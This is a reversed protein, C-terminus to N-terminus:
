FSFSVEVEMQKMELDITQQGPVEMPNPGSVINNFAYNFAFHLANGKENLVKSAGVGIHSEVVGPALINFLVESEPIPQKGFSYGGRFTWTDIGSYNIGFKYVMMNEWGFGAGNDAGLMGSGDPAFLNSFPNSVAKSKTYCIRKIDALLKVDGSVDWALGATWSSPITFKGQEAFLGAYEDFETMLLQTQYQVGLWLNKVLRGMYGVKLGGGYGYDTGNGSLKQPNTSMQAFTALGKAEFYQMALLASIGLSHNESIKHSFAIDGFLQALNVGTTKSSQDYFTMTPYDTNMGGNGYVSLTLASKESLKWNKGMSPMFFVKSDSEITGPTLGFTGEMMSPNGTITYKRNPNFLAIGINWEKDNYVNGAPNGGILSTEYFASGAGAFGKSIPGYGLRFYGDTAFVSSVLMIVTLTFVVKKICYNKMDNM